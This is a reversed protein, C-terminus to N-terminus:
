AEGFKKQYHRIWIVLGPVGIVTPLIWPVIQLWGSLQIWRSAGFVAFATHFAIGAGLIAGMHAYWWARPTSQPNRRFGLIGIGAVFGIPSLALLVIRMSPDGLLGLVIIGVSAFSVDVVHIEM